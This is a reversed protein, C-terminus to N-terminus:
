PTGGFSRIADVCKWCVVRNEPHGRFAGHDALCFRRISEAVQARILPTLTEVAVTADNGFAIAAHQQRQHCDNGLHCTIDHLAEAVAAVHAADATM